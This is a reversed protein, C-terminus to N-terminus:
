GASDGLADRWYGAALDLPVPHMFHVSGGAAVTAVLIEALREITAPEGRLPRIELTMAREGRRPLPVRRRERQRVRCRGTRRVRLCRRAGPRPARRRGRDAAPGQDAVG